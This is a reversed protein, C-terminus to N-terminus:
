AVGKEAQNAAKKFEVHYDHRFFYILGGMVSLAMLVGLWLVGVAAARDTGIHEKLFYVYAAERIGLGNISPLMSILHVVPVLLFFYVLSERPAGLAAGILYVGFLSVCQAGISLAIAAAIVQKHRRFNHLGDYINRVKKGLGFANLATEVFKFRRAAGRNFLLVFSLISVAFFSYVLVPIRPNMRDWVFFLSVSPILVFTFLGFIRDMLVSTVSKVPHGTLRAASLAKVIDGGVSTPLFNNFFYGIFTLNCTAGLGIRVEDAAFILQLRKALIPVTALFILFAAGFLNRDVGRLVQVITPAEDRIGYALLGLFAASVAVRLLIKPM